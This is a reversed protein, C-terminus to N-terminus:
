IGDREEESSRFQSPGYGTLNLGSTLQFSSPCCCCQGTFVAKCWCPSLPQQISPSIRWLPTSLGLPQKGM